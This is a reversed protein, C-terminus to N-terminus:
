EVKGMKAPKQSAECQGSEHAGEMALSTTWQKCLNEGPEAEIPSFDAWCQAFKFPLWEM